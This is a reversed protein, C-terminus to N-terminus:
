CSQLNLSTSPSTEPGSGVGMLYSPKPTRAGYLGMWSLQVFMCEQSRSSSEFELQSIPGQCLTSHSWDLDRSPECRDLVRRLYVFYPVWKLMSSIPQEIASYVHRVTALYLLMTFRTCITNADNVGSSQQLISYIYVCMHHSVAHCSAPWGKTM